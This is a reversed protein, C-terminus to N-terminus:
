IAKIALNLHQTILENRANYEVTNLTTIPHANM